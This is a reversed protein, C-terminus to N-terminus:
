KPPLGCQPHVKFIDFVGFYRSGVVKHIMHEVSVGTTALPLTRKNIPRLDVAIRYADSGKEKKAVCVLNTAWFTDIVPKYWGHQELLDFHEKIFKQQPITYRRPPSRYPTADPKLRVEYEPLLSPPDCGVHLRFLDYLQAIQWLQNFEDETMEPIQQRVDTLQQAILQRVDTNEASFVFPDIHNNETEELYTLDEQVAAEQAQHYDPPPSTEIELLSYAINQRTLGTDMQLDCSDAKTRIIHGHVGNHIIRQNPHYEQGLQQQLNTVPDLGQEILWTRGLLAYPLESAVIYFTTHPLHMLRNNM